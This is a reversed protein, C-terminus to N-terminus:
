AAPRGIAEARVNAPRAAARDTYDRLPGDEDLLGRRYATGLPGSVLVDAVTFTDGLLWPGDTVADRVAAAVPAFREAHPDLPEEARKALVWSFITKELEAMAFFMWQYVLARGTTGVPPVLGADPHLDALHLCLAGSEHVVRGDDLELAPVRGLPHRARHEESGKTERTMLTLEYPAGLEELTWLVRTSRSGPIHFLRM